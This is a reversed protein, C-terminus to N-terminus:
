QYFLLVSGQGYETAKFAAPVQEVGTVAAKGRVSDKVYFALEDFEVIGDHNLDAAGRLADILATTFIGGNMWLADQRGTGAVLINRAPKRVEQDMITYRRFRTLTDREPEASEFRPLALGAECSDILMLVHNSVINDFHRGTLDKLLLGSTTPHAADFDATVLFGTRETRDGVPKDIHGGHGGYYFVLRDADSHKGGFWFQQLQHEINETTAQEDTLLFINQKPFGSKELMDALIKANAVMGGLEHYQSRGSNAPSLKGYQDIAAIIAYSNKYPPDFGRIVRDELWVYTTIKASRLVNLGDHVPQVPGLFQVAHGDATMAINSPKAGNIELGAPSFTDPPLDQDFRFAGSPPTFNGPRTRATIHDRIERASEELFRAQEDYGGLGRLVQSGELIREAAFGEDGSALSASIRTMAVAVEPTTYTDKKDIRSILLKYLPVSPPSYQQIAIAANHVERLSGNQLADSLIPSLLQFDARASALLGICDAKLFPDHSQWYLQRIKEVSAKLIEATYPRQIVSDLIVSSVFQLVTPDKSDLFPVLEGVRYSNHEREVYLRKAATARIDASDSKLGNLIDQYPPPAPVFHGQADQGGVYVETPPNPRAGESNYVGFQGQQAYGTLPLGLFLACLAGVRSNKKM